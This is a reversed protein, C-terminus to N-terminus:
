IVGIGFMELCVSSEKFGLYVPKLARFSAQPINLGLIIALRSSPTSSYVRCEEGNQGEEQVSFLRVTYHVSYTQLIVMGDAPNLRLSRMSSRAVGCSFDIRARATAGIDSRSM